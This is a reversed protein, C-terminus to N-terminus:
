GGLARPQGLLLVQGRRPGRACPYKSTAPHPHPPRASSCPPVLQPALLPCLRFSPARSTPTVPRGPAPGPSGRSDTCCTGSSPALSPPTQAHPTPGAQTRRHSLLSPSGGFAPCRPPGPRLATGGTERPGGETEKAHGGSGGGVDAERGRLHFWCNGEPPATSLALPPAPLGGELSLVSCAPAPLM